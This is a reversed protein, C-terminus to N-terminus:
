TTRIPSASASGTMPAPLGPSREVHPNNFSVGDSFPVILDGFDLTIAGTVKKGADAYGNLVAGEFQWQIPAASAGISGVAVAVATALDRMLRMVFERYNSLEVAVGVASAVETYCHFKRM